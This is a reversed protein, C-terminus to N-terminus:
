DLGELDNGKGVLESAGGAGSWAGVGGQAGGQAGAADQGSGSGGPLAPVATAAGTLSGPVTGPLAAVPVPAGGPGEVALAGTPANGLGLGVADPGVLARVDEWALAPPVYASMAAEGGERLVGELLSVRDRVAAPHELLLDLQLSPTRYCAYPHAALTPIVYALTSPPSTM